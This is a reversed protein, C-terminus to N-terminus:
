IFKVRYRNIGRDSFIPSSDNKQDLLWDKKAVIQAIIILGPISHKQQCVFWTGLACTQLWAYCYQESVRLLEAFETKTMEKIPYNKAKEQELKEQEFKDVKPRLGFLRRLSFGTPMKIIM